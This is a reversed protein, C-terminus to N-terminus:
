IILLITAFWGLVRRALPHNLVVRVPREERDENRQMFSTALTEGCTRCRCMHATQLIVPVGQSVGAFIEAICKKVYQPAQSKTNKNNYVHINYM